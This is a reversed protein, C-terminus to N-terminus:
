VRAWHAASRTHAHVGVSVSGDECGYAGCVFGPANQADALQLCLAV